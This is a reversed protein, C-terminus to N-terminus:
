QEIPLRLNEEPSILTTNYRMLKFCYCTFNKLPWTFFVRFRTHYLYVIIPTNRQCKRLPTAIYESGDDVIAPTDYLVHTATAFFM